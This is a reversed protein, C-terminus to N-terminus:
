GFLAKMEAESFKKYEYGGFMMVSFFRAAEKPRVGLKKLLEIGEIGVSEDASTYFIGFKGPAEPNHDLLQHSLAANIFRGAQSLDLSSDRIQLFGRVDNSWSITGDEFRDAGQLSYTIETGTRRLKYTVGTDRDKGDPMKEKRELDFLVGYVELASRNLDLACSDFYIGFNDNIGVTSGKKYSKDTLCKKPFVVALVTDYKPEPPKVDEKGLLKKAYNRLGM